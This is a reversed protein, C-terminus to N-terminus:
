ARHGSPKPEKAADPAAQCVSADHPGDAPMVDARMTSPLEFDVPLRSSSWPVAQPEVSGSEDSVAAASGRPPRGPSSYWGPRVLAGRKLMIEDSCTGIPLRWYVTLM